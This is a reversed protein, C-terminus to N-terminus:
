PNKERSTVKTSLFFSDEFSDQSNNKNTDAWVTIKVTKMWGEDAGTTDPMGSGGNGNCIQTSWRFPVEDYAFQNPVTMPTNCNATTYNTGISDFDNRLIRVHEDLLEGAIFMVKNLNQTRRLLALTGSGGGGRGEGLSGGAIMLMLPMIAIVLITMGILVEALTLGKEKKM